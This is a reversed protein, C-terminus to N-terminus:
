REVVLEIKTGNIYEQNRLLNSTNQETRNKGNASQSSHCPIVTVAPLCASSVASCERRDKCSHGKEDRGTLSITIPMIDYCYVYSLLRIGNADRRGEM